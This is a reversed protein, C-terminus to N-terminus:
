EKKNSTDLNKQLKKRYYLPYAGWAHCDSRPNEFEEPLTKMGEKLLEYHKEMRKEFLKELGYRM